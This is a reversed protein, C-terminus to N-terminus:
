NSALYNAVGEHTDKLADQTITYLFYTQDKNDDKGKKLYLQGDREEKQCYHGTAFYDFSIGAEMVKEVLAGFKIRSNCRVCPNPTRGQSYEYSFDALVIDRYERKLDFQHFPIGLVDCVEAAKAADEEEDPGFCAHRGEFESMVTGDWINMTVGTVQYGQEVLLAAAVSSDVGGSLGVVVHKNM